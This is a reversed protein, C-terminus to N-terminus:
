RFLVPLKEDFIGHILFFLRQNKPVGCEMIEVKINKESKSSKQGVTIEHYKMAKKPTDM